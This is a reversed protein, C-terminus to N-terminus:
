NVQYVPIFLRSQVRFGKSTVINKRHKCSKIHRHLDKRYYFELCSECPLFDKYTTENPPCRKVTLEGYGQQLVIMNHNFDGKRRLADCIEKRMQLKITRKEASDDKEFTLSNLKTVDAESEHRDEFHRAIKPYPKGCYVCFHRKDWARKNNKTNSSKVFIQLQSASNDSGRELSNLLLPLVTIKRRTVLETDETDTSVHSERNVGKKLSGGLSQIKHSLHVRSKKAKVTPENYSERIDETKPSSCPYHIIPSFELKRKKNKVKPEKTEKTKLEKAMPEDYSEVSDDTGASRYLPQLTPSLEIKRKKVRLKTQVTEEEDADTESETMDFTPMFTKDKM